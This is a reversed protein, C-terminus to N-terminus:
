PLFTLPFFLYADDVYVVLIYAIVIGIGLGILAHRKTKIWQFSYGIALTLLIFTLGVTMLGVSFAGLMSFIYIFIAAFWYYKHDGKIAFITTVLFLFLSLYAILSFIMSNKVGKCLGM